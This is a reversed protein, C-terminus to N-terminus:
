HHGHADGHAHADAAPPEVSVEIPEYHMLGQLWGCFLAVGVLSAACGLQSWFNPLFFFDLFNYVGPQIRSWVLAALLTLLVVPAWAGAALVPWLKKWNVAWLWFACWLAGPLTVALFQLVSQELNALDM